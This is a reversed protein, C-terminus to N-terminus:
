VIVFNCLARIWFIPSINPIMQFTQHHKYEVYEECINWLPLLSIQFPSHALAIYKLINYILTCKVLSRLKPLLSSCSLLGIVNKNVRFGVAHECYVNNYTSYQTKTQINQCKDLQSTQFITEYCTKKSRRFTAFVPLEGSVFSM